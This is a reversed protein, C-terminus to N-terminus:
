PNQQRVQSPSYTALTVIQEQAQQLGDQTHVAVTELDHRLALLKANSRAESQVIADAILKNDAFQQQRLEALVESKM